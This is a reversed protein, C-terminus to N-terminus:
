TQSQISSIFLLDPFAACRILATGVYLCAHLLSDWPRAWWESGGGGQGWADQQAGDRQDRLETFSVRCGESVKALHALCLHITPACNPRGTSFLGPSGLCPRSHRRGPPAGAPVSGGSEPSSPISWLACCRQLSRGRGVPPSLKVQQTGLVSFAECSSWPWHDSGMKACDM